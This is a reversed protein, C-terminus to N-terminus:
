SEYLTRARDYASEVQQVMGGVSFAARIRAQGATGMVERRVPDSLLMSVADAMAAVDGPPLLVGVAQDEVRDEVIEAVGGQRFAVVPTGQALAEAVVLGFPEPDVSTHVVLDAAALWPRADDVQGVWTLSKTLGLTEAQRRLAAPYEPELGFLSGGVIAFSADHHRQAIRAAVDLFVHTGKWRQLRGCWVVLPGGVRSVPEVPTSVVGNHVVHVRDHALRGRWSHAVGHSVALAQQAEVASALRHLVGNASWTPDFCDHLHWVVPVHQRAAARAGYLQGAIGHTHVVDPAVTRMVDTLADILRRAAGVHRFRPVPPVTVVAWGHARWMADLPSGRPAVVVPQYRGGGSVAAHVLSEVVAEAGGREAALTIHLVRGRGRTTEPM